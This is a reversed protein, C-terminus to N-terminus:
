LKKKSAIELLKKASLQYSKVNEELLLRIIKNKNSKYGETFLLLQGV